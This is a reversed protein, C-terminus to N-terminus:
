ESGGSAAYRAAERDYSGFGVIEQLEEFGLLGEPPQGRSLAALAGRMAVIAANLLTLSRFLM